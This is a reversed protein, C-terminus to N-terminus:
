VRAPTRHDWDRPLTPPGRASGAYRAAKLCQAGRPKQSDQATASVFYM